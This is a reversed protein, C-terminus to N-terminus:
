CAPTVITSHVCAVTSVTILTLPLLRCSGSGFSSGLFSGAGTGGGSGACSSLAISDMM